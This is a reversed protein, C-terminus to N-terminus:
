EVVVTGSARVVVLPEELLHSTSDSAPRRGDMHEAARCVVRAEFALERSTTGVRLLIAEAEVVDGTHVPELFDVDAFGVLQGEDDDTRICMETAVDGFLRLVYAGDVLKGAYHAEGRPVYRRHLVSTGVRPDAEPQQEVESVGWRRGAEDVTSTALALRGVETAAATSSARGPISLASSTAGHTNKSFGAM